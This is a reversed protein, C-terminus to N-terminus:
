YKELFTKRDFNNFSLKIKKFSKKLLLTLHQPVVVFREARVVRELRVNGLDPSLKAGFLMLAKNLPDFLDLASSEKWFVIEYNLATL